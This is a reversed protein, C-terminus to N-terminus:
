RQTVEEIVHWVFPGELFSGHHAANETFPYGTEVVRFRRFETENGPHVRLWVCHAGQPDAGVHVVEAGKPVRNDVNTPYKWIVQNRM